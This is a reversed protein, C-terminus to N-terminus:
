RQAKRAKRRQRRTPPADMHVIEFTAGQELPESFLIPGPGSKTVKGMGKALVGLALVGMWM